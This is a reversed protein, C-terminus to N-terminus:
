CIQCQQVVVESHWFGVYLPVSGFISKGGHRIPSPQTEAGEDLNPEGVVHLTGLTELRQVRRNEQWVSRDCLLSLTAQCTDRVPREALQNKHDVGRTSLPDNGGRDCSRRYESTWHRWLGM